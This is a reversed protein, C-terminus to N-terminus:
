DFMIARERYGKKRLKPDEQGVNFFTQVDEGGGGELLYHLQNKYSAPPHLQLKRSSTTSYYYSM